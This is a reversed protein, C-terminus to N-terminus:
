YVFVPANKTKFYNIMKDLLKQGIGGGRYKTKVYLLGIWGEKSPNHSLDYIEDDGKNHEIIVGQIFGVIHNNEEAVYIKGNMNKVDDIMKQIYRHADDINKIPCRNTHKTLKQFINKFSLNCKM